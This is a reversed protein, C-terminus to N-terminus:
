AEARATPLTIRVTTGRGRESEVAITGGNLEVNRKAITLGLGTGSGRTSFYPEFIRDLSARDMGVGTDIIELRVHSEDHVASAIRLTGVGPMAHLANEIINTLARALVGKDVMLHPLSDPIATEITVRGALGLRYPQVVEEILENLKTPAPRATPSSAFSSFEGAIQRLLRVQTLINRVCEELAAGLPSGRDQHVRRLHEANLQIPTLPNKIDHAVQRAMDAWAALRNTRELEVRQRQLDAAMRNFAEVLRRFEDSSTALIRADLDGRAIRGTAKMLRNVPDAIREAMSYGIFAGLMIFLVAALLVRRDLEDIQAEIEQQRLTLPITLVADRNQVRVPAAAVFYEFSGVTERGVYSPRGNLIIERYVDGQTREPLLGSAFLNRESSALLGSGDFINVDQAIVRSLWVVLNDDVVGQASADSTDLTGVDVVVRSASAATRSAEMELDAEMLTAIYARTVFALVLVPMVAAAVFAIFLKRYFSARVERLLARGSNPARATIVGSLFGGILLVVYTAAALAILEALNVLHGFASLRQYGLAYIASRDNLFYVEYEQDGRSVVDWFPERSALVREFVPEPLTWADPGSIYLPRRSWGYVTFEIKERPTPEPREERPPRLLEVYPSQASIFSLNGYDLMVHVVISGAVNRTDESGPPCIARGAHLLRREEAFFPSVEEFIEWACSAEQV